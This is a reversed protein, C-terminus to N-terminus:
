RYDDERPNAESDFTELLATIWLKQSETMQARARLMTDKVRYCENLDYDGYFTLDAVTDGNTDVDIYAVVVFAPNYKRTASSFNYVSGAVTLVRDSIQYFGNSRIDIYASANANDCYDSVMSSLADRTFVGNAKEVCVLPAVLVGVSLRDAGYIAAIHDYELRSLPATFRLALGNEDDDTVRVGVTSGVTRTRKEFATVTTAASLLLAVLLLLCLIKKKM